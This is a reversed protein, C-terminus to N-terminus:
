PTDSNAEQEMPRKFINYDYVADEIIENLYMALIDTRSYEQWLEYAPMEMSETRIEYARGAVAYVNLIAYLEAMLEREEATLVYRELRTKAANYFVRQLFEDAYTDFEQLNADPNGKEAAWSVVDVTETHYSYDEPGFYKLVGYICPSTSLSATVIEDMQYEESTKYHQVHLHGSLFLKVDWGGLLEGLEEAHEITCDEEYIRSQDMLNHHAVAIVQRDEFWATGLIEELWNYTERRIMGGVLAGNEYQCSDLMLLWTGDDLEAVYSLSAPDRSVAEDYGFEAYISEFDGPMTQVTPIVEEGKYSAARPNNIDHNGPIVYVPVGEAEVKGLKSALAEHSIREGDLTLDGSLILAQPRRSIVEELFADTIEWVYLPMKGDGGDTMRQFAPGFDTLEKALYHIDSAVVIEPNFVQEQPATTEEVELPAITEAQAESSSLTPGQAETIEPIVLEVTPGAGAPKEEKQYASCGQLVFLATMLLVILKKKM